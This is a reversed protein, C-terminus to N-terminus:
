TKRVLVHQDNLDTFLLWVRGDFLNRVHFEKEEDLLEENLGKTIVESSDYRIAGPLVVFLTWLSALVINITIVLRTFM